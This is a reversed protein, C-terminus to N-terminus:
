SYATRSGIHIGRGMTACRMSSEIPSGAPEWPLYLGNSLGHCTDHFRRDSKGQTSLLRMSRRMARTVQRAANWPVDWAIMCKGHLLGMIGGSPTSQFPAVERLVKQHLQHAKGHVNRRCTVLGM